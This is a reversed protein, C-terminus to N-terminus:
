QNIIWNFEIRIVDVIQTLYINTKSQTWNETCKTPTNEIVIRYTTEKINEPEFWYTNCLKRIEDDMQQSQQRAIDWIMDYISM